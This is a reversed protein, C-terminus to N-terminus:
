GVLVTEKPDPSFAPCFDGDQRTTAMIVKKSLLKNIESDIILIESPGFVCQVAENSSPPYAMFDVKLGERVIDIIFKDNTIDIWARLYQQINAAKYDLVENKLDNM